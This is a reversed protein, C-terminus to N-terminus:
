IKRLKFVLRFMLGVTVTDLCTVCEGKAIQSHGNRVLRGIAVAIVLEQKDASDLNRERTTTTARTAFALTSSAVRTLFSVM